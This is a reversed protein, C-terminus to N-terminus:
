RARGQGHRPRRRRARDVAVNAWLDINRQLTSGLDYSRSRDRAALGLRRRRPADDLLEDIAAALAEPDVPPVIVGADGVAESGSVDTVVLAAGCAMAELLVLSM